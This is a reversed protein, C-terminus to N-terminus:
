NVLKWNQFVLIRFVNILKRALELSVLRTKTVRSETVLEPNSLPLRALKM